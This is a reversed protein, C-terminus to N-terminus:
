GGVRVVGFALTAFVEDVLKAPELARGRLWAQLVPERVMGILMPALIATDGPRVIGVAQGIGLARALRTEADSYFQRLAEGSEEDVGAADTFLIRVSDGMGVLAAVVREVDARVQPPIPQTVDIPEVADTVAAILEGLVAQFVSRKSEFYNYFTGRAVGAREIIEAINAAYYGREAFVARAAALLQARRADPDLPRARSMLVRLGRGRRRGGVGGGVDGAGAM